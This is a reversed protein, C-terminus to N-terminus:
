ARAAGAEAVDSTSPSAVPVPLLKVARNVSADSGVVAGDVSVMPLLPDAFESM